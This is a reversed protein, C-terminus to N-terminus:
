GEDFTDVNLLLKHKSRLVRHGLRKDVNLNEVNIVKGGVTYVRTYTYTSGRILRISLINTM